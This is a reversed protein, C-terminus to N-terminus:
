GHQRQRDRYFKAMTVTDQANLERVAAQKARTQQEREILKEIAAVRQDALRLTYKLPQLQRTLQQHNQTLLEITQQLGRQYEDDSQLSTISRHNTKQRHREELAALRLSEVERREKELANVARIVQALQGRITDREQVRLLLISRYRGTPSTVM